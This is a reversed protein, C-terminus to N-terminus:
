LPLLSVSHHAAASLPLGASGRRGVVRGFPEAAARLDAVLGGASAPSRAGGGDGRAGALPPVPRRRPRRACWYIVFVRVPVARAAPVPLPPLMAGNRACLERMM